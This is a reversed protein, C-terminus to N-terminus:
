KPYPVQCRTIGDTHSEIQHKDLLQWIDERSNINNFVQESFYMHYNNALVSVNTCSIWFWSKDKGLFYNKSRTKKDQQIDNGDVQNHGLWYNLIM